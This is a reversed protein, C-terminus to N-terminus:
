KIIPPFLPKLEEINNAKEWNPMGQKWVLTDPLLNGSMAMEKLKNIDFPGTPKGDKAISYTITPIPPPTADDSLSPMANNMFSAMNKGVVGGVALGAMMTAPNFGMGNNDGLNINGVNNEGMKGLAEAGAIGVETQKETKYATINDTRTQMHQAYQSEERQIRLTEEYNELEIRQKELLDKIKVDKESVITESTIDKTIAMLKTYDPSSKNIDIANIDISTTVIGFSEKLKNALSIELDNNITQIASEVRIAPINYNFPANIVAGKVYRTVADKIQTQFNDLTFDSLRHLKIFEKYDEIKFSITGRVSVPITFDPYRPESVDFYPIGFKIQIIKALNIFYVEAQFPTDGGIFTGLIGSLVPLNSTKLQQDYPGVIFDQMTGDKQNYVFVAVEGDKVRLSSNCRIAYERKHEGQQTGDPHWKWILYSEQDCRIVDTFLGIKRKSRFFEM